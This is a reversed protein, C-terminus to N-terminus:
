RSDGDLTDVAAALACANCACDIATLDECAAVRSRWRDALPRAAECVDAMRRVREIAAARDEDSAWRGLAAITEDATM